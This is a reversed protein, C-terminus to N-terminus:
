AAWARQITWRPAFRLGDLGPTAVATGTVVGMLTENGVKIMVPDGRHVFRPDCEALGAAALGTAAFGELGGAPEMIAHAEAETAYTGRWTALPDKGTLLQVVDCAFSLCDHTGWAFTVARRAEVLAALAEPWNEPRATASRPRSM